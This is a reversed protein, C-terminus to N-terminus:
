GQYIFIPIEREMKQFQHILSDTCISWDMMLFPSEGAHQVFQMLGQDFGEYMVQVGIDPFFLKMYNIFIKENQIEEESLPETMLASFPSKRFEKSFLNLFHKVMRVSSQSADHAMLLCDMEFNKPLILMPCHMHDMMKKVLECDFDQQNGLIMLDSVTSASRLGKLDNIHNGAEYQYGLNNGERALNLEFEIKNVLEDISRAYRKKVDSLVAYDFVEDLILSSLIKTSQQNLLPSLQKLLGLLRDGTSSALIIKHKM